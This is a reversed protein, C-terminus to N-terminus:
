GFQGQDNEFGPSLLSQSLKTLCIMCNSILRMVGGFFCINSLKCHAVDGTMWALEDHDKRCIFLLLCVVSVFHWM